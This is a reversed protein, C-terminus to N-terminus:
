AQCVGYSGNGAEPGEVFDIDIHMPKTSTNIRFRGDYTAEPSAM